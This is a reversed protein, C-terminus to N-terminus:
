DKGADPDKELEMDQWLGKLPQLTQTHARASQLQLESERAQQQHELTQLKSSLPHDQLGAM